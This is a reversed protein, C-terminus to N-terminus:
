SIKLILKLSSIHLITANEQVSGFTSFKALCCVKVQSPASSDHFTARKLAEEKKVHVIELNLSKM